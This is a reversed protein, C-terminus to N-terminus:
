SVPGPTTIGNLNLWVLFRNVSKRYTEATKPKVDLWNLWEIFYDHKLPQNIPTNIKYEEIETNRMIDVEEIIAQITTKRVSINYGTMGKKYLRSDLYKKSKEKGKKYDDSKDPYGRGIFLLDEAQIGKEPFLIFFEASKAASEDHVGTRKKLVQLVQM